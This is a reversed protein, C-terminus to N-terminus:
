LLDACIPYHDSAAEFVANSPIRFNEFRLDGKYFMHDIALIKTMQLQSLGTPYTPERSNLGRADKFGHSTIYPIVLGKKLENAANVMYDWYGSKGKILPTNNFFATFTRFAMDADAPYICNLDGMLVASMNKNLTKMFAETELLRTSESLDELYLCNISIEKGGYKVRARAANRNHIRITEFETNRINSLVTICNDHGLRQLRKDELTISYVNSYGFLQRISNQTFIETWRYTDILCIVDAGILRVAERVKDLREPFKLNKSYSRFGGSMINYSAIKM